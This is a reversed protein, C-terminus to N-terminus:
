EQMKVNKLLYEYKPESLDKQENQENTLNILTNAKKSGSGGIILIRYPTEPTYPWNKNHETKNENVYDDFNIM